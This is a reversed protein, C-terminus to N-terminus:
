AESGQWPTFRPIWRPVNATFAAYDVPFTRRLTPEEYILVFLHMALWCCLGYEFIRVDGFILSQGLILSVVAVYMPNRVFRYSGTVVLRKTPYIPAPTGIGQLAFRLFAELLFVFAVAMLVAGAVRLATFGVFPTHVRGKGIWWPVLGAVTGPAVFLFIASGVLALIRSKSEVPNAGDSAM